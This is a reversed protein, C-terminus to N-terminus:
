NVMKFKARTQSASFANFHWWENRIMSFGAELMVERLLLRNAVQAESLEGSQLFKDEYRPQALNGFFDFPTGMDLLEGKETAISLDVAAGFNHISGKKPSAVYSQQPTGKVIRWMAFQVSRPRVADFVHLRLDPHKDMLIENARALKEAAEPQMFARRLSGYVNRHLFNDNSAYKLNVQINPDASQIDVLGADLLRQELDALTPVPAEESPNSRSVPVQEPKQFGLTPAPFTQDLPFTDLIALDIEPDASTHDDSATNKSSCGFVLFAICIGYGLALATSAKIM